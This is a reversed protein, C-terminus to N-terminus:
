SSTSPHAGGFEDSRADLVVKGRVHGREVYRMADAAEALPFVRDIVPRLAGTALLARAEELEATRPAEDLTLVEIRQEGGRFRRWGLLLAEFIQANAGGVMVYTGRPALRARHAALPRHGNVGLVADYREDDADGASRDLVRDAGLSRVLEVSKPGCVATVRLGRAKAIQVLFTGVGGGAGYIEISAGPALRARALASIATISALPVAAAEAFSLGEPVGVLSRESVCVHEAFGGLGDLFTDGMVADGIAHKTVGPGVAVVIGAVDVGLIRRRPRFLGNALRALFPDARMLRADAANISACAVRVLVQGPGPTPRPVEAIRLVEPGGYREYVVARMVPGVHRRRQLAWEAVVVNIAWGAGMAAAHSAESQLGDVLVLPVHTLAQTGAGIGIAYARTMWAGHAVFDRRRVAVLGAVVFGAMATGAVLRMAFLASGDLPGPPYVLTMWLGSLAAALGLPALVRGAARHWGLARRRMGPALQLAGLVSFTTASVVHVIAPIPDAAFRANEALTPDGIALALLRAVGALTPM